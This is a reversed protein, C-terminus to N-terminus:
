SRRWHTYSFLQKKESPTLHDRMQSSLLEYEEGLVQSISTADYRAVPLGSCQTPGEPGFTALVLHGGARLSKDLVGLYRDRDAPDVMFHFLARDHWLDFRRQFDHNRVDAEIWSVLADDPDLRSRARRMAEESIDAVTVDSYGNGVLEAALRSAGGGVDIIAADTPLGAETILALSTTPTSETWSLEEIGRDAYIRQWDAAQQDPM